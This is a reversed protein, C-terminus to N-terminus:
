MQKRIKLQLFVLIMDKTGQLHLPNRMFYHVDCIWGSNLVALSEPFLPLLVGSASPDWQRRLDELSCIKNCYTPSLPGPQCLPLNACGQHHSVSAHFQSTKM